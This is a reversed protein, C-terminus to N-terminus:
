CRITSTPNSRTPIVGQFYPIDLSPIPADFFAPSLISFSILLVGSDVAPLRCTTLISAHRPCHIRSYKDLFEPIEIPRGIQFKEQSTLIYCCNWCIPCLTQIQIELWLLQQMFHLGCLFSRSLLNKVEFPCYTMKRGRIIHRKPDPFHFIRFYTKKYEVMGFSFIFTYDPFKLMVPPGPHCVTQDQWLNHNLDSSNPLRSDPLHRM